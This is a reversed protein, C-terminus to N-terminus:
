TKLTFPLPEFARGNLLPQFAHVGPHYVRTTVPRIAHKGEITWTEGGALARKRGKFVKPSLSGNAKRHHIAYDFLVQLPRKSTNRVVLRYGIAEGVKMSRRDLECSVLELADAGGYGLLALAGPHGAKLMTRCAHRTLKDLRPDDPSRKRWRKLTAIVLDPHRKSFDNLHNSVSLRVYDSPDLHLKELLDLTPYPPELLDPLNGGWPLFPRSGESVLRRVHECPDDCWAHLQRLTRGRLPEERLFVRIGFEATFCKTMESFSLMSVEFHNTATGHRSVIETFPWVLFGRLGGVHMARVLIPFMTQPDQPLGAAIREALFQMRQKLELPELAAALGRHFRPLPFEPHAQKLAAGILRAKDASLENKFPEM